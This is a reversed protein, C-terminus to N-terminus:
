SDDVEVFQLAPISPHAANKSAWSHKVFFSVVYGNSNIGAKGRWIRVLWQIVSLGTYGFSVGGLPLVVAGFFVRRLNFLDSHICPLSLM